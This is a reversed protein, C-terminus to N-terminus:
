GGDDGAGTEPTKWGTARRWAAELRDDSMRDVHGGGTRARDLAGDLATFLVGTAGEAAEEEAWVPGINQALWERGDPAAFRRETATLPAAGALLEELEEETLDGLSRNASLRARRDGTGEEAHDAGEEAARFYCLGSGDEARWAVTARWPIGDARFRREATEGREMTATGTM